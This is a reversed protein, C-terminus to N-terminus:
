KVTTGGNKNKNMQNKLSNSRKYRISHRHMKFMSKDLMLKEMYLYMSKNILDDKRTFEKSIFLKIGKFNRRKNKPIMSFFIKNSMKLPVGSNIDGRARSCHTCYWYSGGWKSVVREMYLNTKCGPCIPKEEM